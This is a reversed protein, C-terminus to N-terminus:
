GLLVGKVFEVEERNGCVLGGREGTAEVRRGLVRQGDEDVAAGGCCEVVLAVPTLEYLRRLKATSTATVPSIYIGHGKVLSHVIDPVLGGSYRLTYSDTIFRSVLSMYAPHSAAARLNAPAFYRTGGLGGQRLSVNARVVVMEDGDYGVEFCTGECGPLRIAVFATTRPGQVGLIGAVLTAGPDPGLATRGDWLGMITGVAWNPAIISSGDLPDFALTYIEGDDTEPIPNVGREVPDEESSATVIRPCDNIATRIITEALVDVNLQADGFANATGIQSVHSSTRLSAAISSITHLLTPLISDRLAPRSPLLTNLHSQLTLLHPSPM